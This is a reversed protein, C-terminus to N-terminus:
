PLWGDEYPKEVPPDVHAYAQRADPTEEEVSAGYKAAVEDVPYVIDHSVRAGLALVACPGDGAGVFVHDTWAPCHVFDWQKLPREEGEVILICEGALVLFDEQNDERHYMSSPKGPWLVGINVGVQKFKAEGDGEGLRTWQGFEEVEFWRADRANVVFWGEGTAALGGDSRELKAEPVV